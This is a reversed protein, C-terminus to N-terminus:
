WGSVSDLPNNFTSFFSSTHTIIMLISTFLFSWNTRFFNHLVPSLLLFHIFLQAVNLVFPEPRLWCHMFISHHHSRKGTCVTVSDAVTLLHFLSVNRKQSPTYRALPPFGPRRSHQMTRRHLVCGSSHNCLMVIVILPSVYKSLLCKRM